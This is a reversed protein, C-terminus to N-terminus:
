SLKRGLKHELLAEAAAFEAPSANEWGDRFIGIEEDLEALARKVERSAYQDCARRMAEIIMERFLDAAWKVAAPDEAGRSWVDERANIRDSLENALFQAWWLKPHM